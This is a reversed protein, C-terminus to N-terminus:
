EKNFTMDLLAMLAKDKADPNTFVLYLNHIGKQGALTMKLPKMTKTVEVDGILTGTPSDLHVEIKGGATRDDAAFASFSISSIGTLDIDNFSVNSGTKTAIAVDGGMQAVSMKMIDKQSDYASGKIKNSRM